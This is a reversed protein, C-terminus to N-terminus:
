TILKLSYRAWGYVFGYTQDSNMNCGEPMGPEPLLLIHRGECERFIVTNMQSHSQMNKGAHIQACTKRTQLSACSNCLGGASFNLTRLTKAERVRVEICIKMILTIYVGVCMSKCECPFPGIGCTSVQGSKKKKESCSYV